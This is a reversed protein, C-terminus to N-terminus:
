NPVALWSMNVKGTVKLMRLQIIFRSADTATVVGLVRGDLIVDLVAASSFPTLPSGTPIM